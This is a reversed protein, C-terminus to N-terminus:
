KATEETAAAPIGTFAEMVHPDTLVESTPGHAIDVGFDMVTTTGAIGTVFGIHHSVLLITVGLETNLRRLSTALEAMEHHELGATPEDLMLLPSGSAIARAIDLQKCEALSLEAGMRGWMEEGVGAFGLAHAAVRRTDRLRDARRVSGPVRQVVWTINELVTLDPVVAPHQFSRTIGLKRFAEPPLGLVDTGWVRVSGATPRVLGSSVNLLTTKGAGNPGVIAHIAGPEVALSLNSLATVGGIQVRVDVLELAPTGASAAQPRAAVQRRAPDENRAVDTVAGPTTTLGTPILRRPSPIRRLQRAPVELVGLVGRPLVILFALMVSASILDGTSGGSAVYQTLIVIGLAGVVPGALTGVGGVVVMAFMLISKTPSFSEPLLVTFTPAVVAGALGALAASLVFAEVRVRLPRVGSVRAVVDSFKVVRLVRGARSSTYGHAVALALVLFGLTGWNTTMVSIPADNWTIPEVLIGLHGGTWRSLTDSGLAVVVVFGFFFTGLAFGFSELRAMCCALLFALAATGLVAGIMAVPWPVGDNQRLIAFLYAGVAVFGFQGLSALGGYGIAIDLGVVAIAYALAIGLTVQFQYDLPISCLVASVAVIVFSHGRTRTNSLAQINM